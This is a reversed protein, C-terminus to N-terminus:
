RKSWSPSASRSARNCNSSVGASAWGRRYSTPRCLELGDLGPMQWDVIAMRPADPEQLAQWAAQGDTTVVVDYGWDRLVGELLLRSVADDEAILIRM